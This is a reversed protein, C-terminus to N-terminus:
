FVFYWLYPHVVDAYIVRCIPCSPIIEDGLEDIRPESLTDICRDCFKLHNCPVLMTNKPCVLCIVCTSDANSTDQVQVPQVVPQVFSNAQMLGNRDEDNQPDVENEDGVIYNNMNDVCGSNDIYTLRKLFMQVDISGNLLSNHEKELLTVQRTKAFKMEEGTLLVEGYDNNAKKTEENLLKLFSLFSCKSEPNCFRKKLADNYNTSCQKGHVSWDLCLNNVGERKMFVNEVYIVLDNFIEFSIAKEKLYEFASRAKDVPVVSLCLFKHFLLKVEDDDYTREYFRQIKKAKM